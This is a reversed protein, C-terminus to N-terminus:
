KYVKDPYKAETASACDYEQHEDPGNGIMETLSFLREPECDALCALLCALLEPMLTMKIGFGFRKVLKGKADTRM